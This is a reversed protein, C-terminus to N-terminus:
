NLYINEKMEKEKKFHNNLYIYGMSTGWLFIISYKNM